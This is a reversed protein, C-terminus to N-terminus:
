PPNIIRAKAATKVSRGSAATMSSEMRTTCATHAPGRTKKGISRNHNIQTSKYTYLKSLLIDM